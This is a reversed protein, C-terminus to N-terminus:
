PRPGSGAAPPIEIELHVDTEADVTREVPSGDLPRLSLLYRGQALGSFVFSGRSDSSTAGGTRGELSVIEVRVGTLPAGQSSLRGSLTLGAGFDLDVTAESAGPDLRASAVARQTGSAVQAIVTWDGPPLGAIRYRGDPEVIGRRDGLTPSRAGVEVRPLLSPALARLRGRITGGRALRVEIGELPEPGMEVETHSSAFEAAEVQLRQRGQRLGSVRFSGDAASSETKPRTDPSAVTVLAGAVPDGGADLVRGSLWLDSELSLDLENSGAKLEMRREAPRYARHEARIVVPGPRLGDLRFAGADDTTWEAVNAGEKGATSSVSVRVGALPKGEADGVSGALAAAPSLRLTLSDLPEETALELDDIRADQYGAASARVSLEGPPLQEAMFAGDEGTEVWRETHSPQVRLLVLAGPIGRDSPDVVRGSVRSPRRLVIEVPSGAGIEAGHVQAEAFDPHRVALDIREGTTLGSFHFTGDTASHAPGVDQSNKGQLRVEAGAVPAGGEDRVVGALEGLKRPSAPNEGGSDLMLRLGTRREGPALPALLLRATRSGAGAKGEIRAQLELPIGPALGYLSFRGGSATATASPDRDRPRPRGPRAAAVEVLVDELTRGYRNMVLGLAAAAPRLSTVTPLGRRGARFTAIRYGPAGAHLREGANSLRYSGDAATRSWHGGAGGAGWVLAGAVPRGTGAEVIKGAAVASGAQRPTPGTRPSGRLEKAAGADRRLVVPPLRTEELLPTLPVVASAMGPAHVTLEWFGTEPAELLFRGGADTRAQIAPEGNEGAAPTLEVRAGAAPKLDAELVKGAVPIGAALLGAPALFALGLLAAARLCLLRRCSKTAPGLVPM